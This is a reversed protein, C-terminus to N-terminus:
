SFLLMSHRRINLLSCKEGSDIICIKHPADDFVSLVDELICDGFKRTFEPISPINFDTARFLWVPFRKENCLLDKIQASKGCGGEGHVM